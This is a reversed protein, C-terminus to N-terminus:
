SGAARAPRTSAFTALRSKSKPSWSPVAMSCCSWTRSTTAASITEKVADASRRSSPPSWIPRRSRRITLGSPLKRPAANAAAPARWVNEFGLLAANAPMADLILPPAEDTEYRWRCIVGSEVDEAFGHARLREDFAELAGRAVVEVVVDIDKTPRPAPAGPDTIWLTVTAGGLFVVDDVPDGLAAAGQGHLEISM